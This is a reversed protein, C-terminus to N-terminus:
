EGAHDSSRVRRASAALRYAVVFSALGSPLVVPLWIQKWTFLAMAALLYGLIIAFSGVAVRVKRWRPIWWAAGAAAAILLLDFWIPAREMFAKRQITAVAAAFLEGESQRSGFGERLTRASRDTRALISVAGQIQRVPATTAQKSDAQEGAVLLEDFPIVTRPAGFNVRMEGFSDIPIEFKEGISVHSGLEVTVEELSSKSWLVVSQLVFSPVIQGRYRLILPVRDQPGRRESVNTFGIAASLRYPENPQREIATWEPVQRLDGTVKRILPAEQLAPLDQPDDPWGLRAALLVKPCRILEDGLIKEYQPLKQLESPPLKAREWDLVEEFCTVAPHFQHMSHAFLSFDLPTWPWVHTALSSENIAVLVIPAPEEHGIRPGNLSLWDGFCEDVAQCPWEHSERLLFLGAVVVLILM